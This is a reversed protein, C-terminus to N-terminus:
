QNVLVDILMQLNGVQTKEEDGNAATKAADMASQMAKFEDSALATELDPAAALANEFNSEATKAAQLLSAFDQVPAVSAVPAASGANGCSVLTLTLVCLTAAFAIAKRM